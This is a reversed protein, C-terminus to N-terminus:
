SSAHRDAMTSGCAMLVQKMQTDFPLHSLAARRCSQLVICFDTCNEASRM